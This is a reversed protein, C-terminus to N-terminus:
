PEASKSCLRDYAENDLAYPNSCDASSAVLGLDQSAESPPAGGHNQVPVLQNPSSGNTRNAQQRVVQHDDGTSDRQISKSEGSAKVDSKSEARLSTSSQESHAGKRSKPDETSCAVGFLIWTLGLISNHRMSHTGGQTQNLNVKPLKLGCNLKQRGMLGLSKM